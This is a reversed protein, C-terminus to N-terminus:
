QGQGAKRQWSESKNEIFLLEQELNPPHNLRQRDMQEPIGM